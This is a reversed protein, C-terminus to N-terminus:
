TEKEEGTILESHPLSKIFECFELWEGLKHGKRQRYINRLVEYNMLMTARQCYSEPLLRLIAEWLDHRAIVNEMPTEFYRKRWNNLQEIIVQLVGKAEEPLDEAAFDEMEFAKALLKHMKSCSNRVTGVKYTDMQAWFMMPATLDFTVTIYRLFKRHESGSSCLKRMLTRDNKGIVPAASVTNYATDSRNWSNLPNRMGRIAAAWGSIELNEIKIM